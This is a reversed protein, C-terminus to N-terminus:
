SHQGEGSISAQYVSDRQAEEREFVDCRGRKNIQGAAGNGEEALSDSGAMDFHFNQWKRAIDIYIVVFSREAKLTLCSGRSPRWPRTRPPRRRGGCPGARFDFGERASAWFAARGCAVLVAGDLDGPADLLLPVVEAAAVVAVVVAAVAVAAVVAAAVIITVARGAADRPKKGTENGACADLAVARAVAVVVAAPVVVVAAVAPAVVVVAAVSAPVVVVAAVAAPVVVVAAVAPAVVVVAAVVAALAGVRTQPCM